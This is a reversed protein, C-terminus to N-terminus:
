ASANGKNAPLPSLCPNLRSDGPYNFYIWLRHINLQVKADALTVRSSQYRYISNM